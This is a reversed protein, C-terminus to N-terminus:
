CRECLIAQWHSGDQSFAQKKRWRQCSNQVRPPPAEPEFGQSHLIPHEYAFATEKDFYPLPNFKPEGSFVVRDAEIEKAAVFSSTSIEDEFFGFAFAGDHEVDFPSVNISGGSNSGHGFFAFNMSSLARHLSELEDAAAETKAAARAMASADIEFLSNSDESLQELLRVRRWQKGSLKQGLCISAPCAGPKGLCLWNLVLVQLCARRKRWNSSFSEGCRFAEPYPLPMPWLCSSHSSQSESHPRATFFSKFFTALRGGHKGILRGISNVLAPVYVTPARLGPVQVDPTPAGGDAESIM